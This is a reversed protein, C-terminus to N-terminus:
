CWYRLVKLYLWPCLRSIKVVEMELGGSSIIRQFTWINVMKVHQASTLGLQIAPQVAKMVSNATLAETYFCIMM